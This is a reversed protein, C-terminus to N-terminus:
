VSYLVTSRPALEANDSDFMSVGLREFAEVMKATNNMEKSPSKGSGKLMLSTMDLRRCIEAIIEQDPVKELDQVTVKTEPVIEEENEEAPCEEKVLKAVLRDIRIIAKRNRRHNKAVLKKFGAFDLACVQHGPRLQMILSCLNEVTMTDEEKFMLDAYMDFNKPRVQLEALAGTVEENNKMEAFEERSITGSGDEDITTFLASIAERIRATHNKLKEGESTKQVVECLIGILMNLMTFSSILVFVMFVLMMIGSDAATRITNTCATLDDLITGMIFLHRMSKGLSGFLMYACGAADGEECRSEADEDSINGQHFVSTFIISFVYLTMVLLAATCSVTRCAATMGRVIIQLEPFFRMLKGMRTIRLLRLLRLISLQDMGGGSAVFALVYTESLMLMVLTSDFIFWFEILGRWERTAFFRIVVEVTFYVCFFNEMVPFGWTDANYLKEPKGWRASYDTDYGIFLANLVIVSLTTIEFKQNGAVAAFCTDNLVSETPKKQVEVPEKRLANIEKWL